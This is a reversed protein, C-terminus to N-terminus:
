CQGDRGITLIWKRESSNVECSREIDLTITHHLFCPDTKLHATHDKSDAELQHRIQRGACKYSAEPTESGPSSQRTHHEWVICFCDSSCDLRELTYLPGEINRLSWSPFTNEFPHKLSGLAAQFSWKGGGGWSLWVIWTLFSFVCWCSNWGLHIFYQGGWGATRM